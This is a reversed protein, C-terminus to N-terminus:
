VQRLYSCTCAHWDRTLMRATCLIADLGADLGNVTLGFWEVPHAAPSASSRMGSLRSRTRATGRGRVAKTPATRARTSRHPSRPPRTSSSRSTLSGRSRHTMSQALVRARSARSAAMLLVSAILVLVRARSAAAHLVCAILVLVRAHQARREPGGRTRIGRNILHDHISRPREYPDEAVILQFFGDWPWCAISRWNYRGRPVLPLPTLLGHWTTM